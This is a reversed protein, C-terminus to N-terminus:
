SLINGSFFIKSTALEPWQTYVRSAFFSAIKGSLSLKEINAISDIWITKIGLCRGIIIGMLGPAAGTTIIVDPKVIFIIKAVCLAMYVLKFKNWRSADPVCYFKYGKVTDAFNAKTSIFSLDQDEFAPMLRLLQIWHGGASALALIRM